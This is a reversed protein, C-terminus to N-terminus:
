DDFRVSRSANADISFMKNSPCSFGLGAGRGSLDLRRSQARQFEGLLAQHLNQQQDQALAMNPGGASPGSAQTEKKFGGMLRLFKHQKETSNFRVTSWQGLGSTKAPSQSRSEKDIDLQLALRREEDRNGTTESLFVVDTHPIEEPTPETEPTDDELKIQKKGKKVSVEVKKKKRRRRKEEEVSVEVKKKEEVSVEVKKKKKKTEEVSVEVKKKKTEEVSVEVKKKKTEEVSVEVKKKKTEEVSVEVKKKKTKEVSVEVKKKKKKTEEVSVEVEAKAKIKIEQSTRKMEKKGKGKSDCSVFVFTETNQAMDQVTSKDEKAPKKKNRKQEKGDGEESKVAKTEKKMNKPSEEDLVVGSSSVKTETLKTEEEKGKKQIPKLTDQGTELPAKRKKTKQHFGPSKQVGAVKKTVSTKPGAKNKMTKKPTMIVVDEDSDDVNIVESQDVIVKKSKKKTALTAEERTKFCGAAKSQVSTCNTKKPKKREKGSPKELTPTHQSVDACVLPKKKKTTKEVTPSGEEGGKEKKDRKVMKLSEGDVSDMDEDKGRIRKKKKKALMNRGDMEKKIHDAVTYPTVLGQAVLPRAPERPQSEQDIDRQLALRKDKNIVIEDATRRAPREFVFIVEASDTPRRLFSSERSLFGGRSSIM